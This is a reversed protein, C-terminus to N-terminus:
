KLHYLVPSFFTLTHTESSMVTDSSSFAPAYIQPFQEQAVSAKRHTEYNAFLALVAVILTMQFLDNVRRSIRVKAMETEM